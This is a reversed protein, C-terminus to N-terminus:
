ASVELGALFAPTRADHSPLVTGWSRAERSAVILEALDTYNGTPRDDDLNEFLPLVDGALVLPGRDSEVVVGQSCRTHGGLHRVEVGPLVTSRDPVRSVVAERERVMWALVDAPYRADLRHVARTSHDLGESSVHITAQDFLPLNGAHDYHLHTLVVHDVDSATLGHEALAGKIGHEALPSWIAGERQWDHQPLDPETEIGGVGTDVLVTETGNELLWALAHVTVDDGFRERWVMLPRPVDLQATDLAHVRWTM